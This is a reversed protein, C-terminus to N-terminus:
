IGVNAPILNRDISLWGEICIDLGKLYDEAYSLIKDLTGAVACEKVEEWDSDLFTTVHKKYCTVVRASGLGDDVRISVGILPDSSNLQRYRLSASLITAKCRVYGKPVVLTTFYQEIRDRGLFEFSYFSNLRLGRITAYIGRVECVTGPEVDTLKSAVRDDFTLIGVSNAEGSLLITTASNHRSPFAAAFRGRVGILNENNDSAEDVDVVKFPSETVPKKSLMYIRSIKTLKYRQTLGSLRKPDQIAIYDGRQVPISLESPLLLCVLDTRSSGYLCYGGKGSIVEHVHLPLVNVGYLSCLGEFEPLDCNELVDIKSHESIKLEIKGRYKVVSANNIVVCDGIKLNNFIEKAANNWAVAEVYGSEDAIIIKMMEVNNVKILNSVKLVRAKVKVNRLGPFLDKLLIRGGVSEVYSSPLPVGLEKAVLLAAADEDILGELEKIREKIMKVIDERSLDRRHTLIHDVVNSKVAKDKDTNRM